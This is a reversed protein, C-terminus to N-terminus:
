TDVLLYEKFKPAFKVLSRQYFSSLTPIKMGLQEAIEKWSYGSIIQLALFRFNAKPNKAAYTEKFIGEPDLELFHIIEQSLTPTLQSNVSYPNNKDLDEITLRIIQKQNVGKPVTPMVERAAEVFFRRKFLFNAWQLVERQSDYEDIRECIHCFLRQKGEAYIDQYFGQFQGPYPHTLKGSRSIASLLKALARQRQKSKKPYRQAELALQKLRADIEKGM